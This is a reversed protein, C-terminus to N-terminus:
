KKTIYASQVLVRVLANISVEVKNKRAQKQVAKLAKIEAESFRVSMRKLVEPKKAKAM